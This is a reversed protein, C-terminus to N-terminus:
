PQTTQILRYFSENKPAATNSYLITWAQMVDPEFQASLASAQDTWSTIVTWHNPRASWTWVQFGQFGKLKSLRAYLSSFADAMPGTLGPGVDVHQFSIVSNKTASLTTSGTLFTSSLSFSQSIDIDKPIALSRHFGDLTAAGAPPPEVLLLFSCRQEIGQFITLTSAGTSGTFLVPLDAKSVPKASQDSSASCLSTTDRKPLLFIYQILASRDAAWLPSPQILAFAATALLCSASRLRLRM